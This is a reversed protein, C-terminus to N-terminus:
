NGMFMLLSSFIMPIVLCLVLIIIFIKRGKASM